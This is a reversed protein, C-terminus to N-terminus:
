KKGGVITAIRKNTKKPVEGILMDALVKEVTKAVLVEVDAKTVFKDELENIIANTIDNIYIPTKDDIDSKEECKSHDPTTTKALREEKAKEVLENWSVDMVRKRRVPAITSTNLTNTDINENVQAITKNEVAAVPERKVSIVGKPSKIEEHIIKSQKGGTVTVHM